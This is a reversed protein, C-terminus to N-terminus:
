HAPRGCGSARDAVDDSDGSMEVRVPGGPKAVEGEGAFRIARRGESAGDGVLRFKMPQEDLDAIETHRQERDLDESSRLGSRMALPVQRPAVNSRWRSRGLPEYSTAAYIVM